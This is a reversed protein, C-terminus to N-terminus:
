ATVSEDVVVEVEATSERIGVTVSVKSVTRGVVLVEVETDVAAPETIGTLENVHDDFAMTHLAIEAKVVCHTSIRAGEM